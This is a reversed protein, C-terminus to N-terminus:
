QRITLQRGIRVLSPDRPGVAGSLARWWRGPVGIGSEAPGPGSATPASPFFAMTREEPLEMGLRRAVAQFAGNDPLIFSFIRDLDLEEFAYRIAEAGAETAYGRRWHDPHLTWGVGVGSWDPREPRYLGVEGPLSGHVAGGAGAM